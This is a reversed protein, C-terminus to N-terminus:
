PRKLSMSTERGNPTWIIVVLRLAQPTEPYVKATVNGSGIGPLDATGTADEGVTTLSFSGNLGQTPDTTGNVSIGSINLAVTGHVTTDPNWFVGEWSGQITGGSPRPTGGGGGCGAVLVLLLFARRM